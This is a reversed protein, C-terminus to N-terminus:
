KVKYRVPWEYGNEEAKSIALNLVKSAPLGQADLDAAMKQPWEALSEAWAKRVEPSIESVTISERLVDVLRDYESLNVTGTQLEYDAAVELLIEKVDDPLEAYTDKNITLGHWTMSGFGILTYYPGPEYLKLNVWASPFMIWGEYVNTKMETYATALSSQVPSVGAYELWNLNLGAGAIKQGKLDSLDKWPFSTGLNYGGDAIQSLLIQNFKDEFVSTLYPVEAYVENAIKLSKVPDMTGFPLMVQFAHLPLNSPEFCFCFGGIDIIGDQVGELVETVKVISGSYGEVFEITHDTREEVRKKLEPQFYKQMLGAYVVGPPHGSGIRLTITDAMAVTAFTSLAAAGVLSKLISKM